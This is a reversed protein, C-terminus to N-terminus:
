THWLDIMDYMFSDHWIQILWTVNSHTMECIFIQICFLSQAHWFDTTDCIFTDHQMRILWIARSDTMTFPDHWMHILWIVCSHTMDYLTIDCVFMYLSFLTKWTRRATLTLWPVYSHTMDCIFSDHWGYILWTVCFCIYLFCTRCADFFFWTVYSHAM